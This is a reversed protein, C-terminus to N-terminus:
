TTTSLSLSFLCAPLTVPRHWIYICVIRSVSQSVSQIVAVHGFPLSLQTLQGEVTRGDVHSPQCQFVLSAAPYLISPLPLPLGVLVVVVLFAFNLLFDIFPSRVLFPPSSLSVSHTLSYPLFSVGKPESPISPLLISSLFFSSLRTASVQQSNSSHYLTKQPDRELRM